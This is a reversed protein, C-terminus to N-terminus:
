ILALSLNSFSKLARPVTGIQTLPDTRAYTCFSNVQRFSFPDTGRLSTDHIKPSRPESRSHCKKRCCCSFRKRGNHCRRSRRCPIRRSGRGPARPQAHASHCSVGRLPALFGPPPFSSVPTLARPPRPPCAELIFDHRSVQTDDPLTAHCDPMRGFLFTDHETFAFVKGKAPGKTVSLSVAM